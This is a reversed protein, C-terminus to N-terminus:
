LDRLKRKVEVCEVKDLGGAGELKWDDGENLDLFADCNVSRVAEVLTETAAVEDEDAM